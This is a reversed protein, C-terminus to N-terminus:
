ASAAPAVIGSILSSWESACWLGDERVLTVPRPSAAGSCAVFLKFPGAEADGSYPNTSCTIQWPLAPLAYGNASWAGAIYAAPLYPQRALLAYLLRLERLRLQRGAHGADGEQLQRASVAAALCARGLAADRTHVLLAVVMTAAGGQPTTALRQRLSVFAAISDPVADIQVSPLDAM